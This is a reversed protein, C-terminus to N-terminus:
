HSCINVKTVVTSERTLLVKAKDLFSYFMVPLLEEEHIHQKVKGCVKCKLGEACFLNNRKMKMGADPHAIEQATFIEATSSHQM